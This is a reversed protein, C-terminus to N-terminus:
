AAAEKQRALFLPLVVAPDHTGREAAIRDWLAVTSPNGSLVAIDDPMDTLDFRCVTSFGPRQILVSRAGAVMGERIQQYEQPTCHLGDDWRGGGCYAARDALENKFLFRTRMQALLSSGMEHALIHEPQQTVFWFAVNKKRGTLVVDEFRRAFYPKPLLFKGEEVVFITRRGDMVREAADLLYTAMIPLVTDDGLLATVDVGVIRSGAFDILDEPGDFAWGRAEGWCWPRLRDAANSPDSPPLFAHVLGFSRQAPPLRLTWAVGKAIRALIGPGPAPGGDARIMGVVLDTAVERDAPTNSLRRLPAAGSPEGRRLAVYVGGNARVVLANSRDKDLLIIRGNAGILRVAMTVCAGMTVTKGSGIPGVFLTNGIQEDHLNHDYATGGATAFRLLPADWRPSPGTNGTPFGDLASLMAVRRLGVNAPRPRWKMNGPWQTWYAAEGGLIGEPAPLCGCGAVIDTVAAAKEDLEAMTSAHVALTWAHEARVEQGASLEDLAEELERRDTIARGESSRMRALTLELKDSAQARSQPRVTNTVVLDADVSLLDDLMGVRTIKPYPNLGFMRGVTAQTEGGARRILFGLAGFVVRDTYLADAFAGPPSALPVRQRRLTRLFVLTEGIESFVSGNHAYTGLRTAGYRALAALTTRVKAELVRMAWPDADPAEGRLRRIATRAWSDSFRAPRVVISLYWERTRLRQLVTADYRSAFAEAYPTTEGGAARGTVAPFPRVFRHSVYHETIETHRDALLQLLAFHRLSSGNRTANAELHFPVGPMRIMAMCGGDRLLVIGPDAHDFYPLFRDPNRELRATTSGIAHQGTNDLPM